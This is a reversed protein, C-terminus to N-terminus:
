AEVKSKLCDFFQNMLMKSASGLLRQGVRALVGSIRADGVINVTTGENTETFTFDGEGRVTGSRGTGEVIM